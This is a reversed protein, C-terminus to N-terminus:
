FLGTGGKPKRGEGRSTEPRIHMSLVRHVKNFLSNSVLYSDTNCIVVTDTPDYRTLM